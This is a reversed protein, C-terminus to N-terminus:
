EAASSKRKLYRRVTVESVGLEKAIPTVPVGESRLQKAAGIKRETGMCLPRGPPLEREAIASAIHEFAGKEKLDIIESAVRELRKTIVLIDVSSQLLFLTAPELGLGQALRNLLDVSINV